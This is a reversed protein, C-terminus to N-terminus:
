IYASGRKTENYQCSLSLHGCLLTESFSIILSYMILYNKTKQNINTKTVKLKLQTSTIM